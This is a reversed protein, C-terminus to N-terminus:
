ETDEFMRKKMEEDILTVRWNEGNNRLNLLNNDCNVYIRKFSRANSISLFYADLVANDKEIDGTMERWLVLAKDGNPVIGEIAKIKYTEGAKLVASVAGYEGTAFDADFSVLSHSRKVTLGILYNFTEVLDVRQRKSELNRTINMWYDFPKDLREVNLLSASQSTETDLMYSLFYGEQAGGLLDAHADRLVINHSM